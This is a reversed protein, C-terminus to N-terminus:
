EGFYLGLTEAVCAPKVEGEIQFTAEIRVLMGGGKPEAGLLRSRLRIRGGTRVSNLFRIRECGYNMARGVNKIKFIAASLVPILSLILYGHAITGGMERTAREIEVHVWQRDGTAEAFETVQQQTIEIWDSVGLERGAHNHVDNLAIELM